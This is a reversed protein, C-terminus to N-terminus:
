HDEPVDVYQGPYKWSPYKFIPRLIFSAPLIPNVIAGSENALILGGPFPFIGNMVIHSSSKYYFQYAPVRNENVIELASRNSNFDWNPPKNSLVNRKISIPPLGTGAYIQVDAYPKDNEVYLRVPSFGGFNFPEKPSRKLETINYGVTIGREGLSFSVDQVNETFTPLELSPTSTSPTVFKPAIQAQAAQDRWVVDQWYLCFGLAVVVVTVFTVWIALTQKNYSLLIGIVITGIVAVAALAQIAIQMNQELLKWNRFFM